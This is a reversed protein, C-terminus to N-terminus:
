QPNHNKMNKGTQSSSHIFISIQGASERLSFDSLAIIRLHEQLRFEALKIAKSTIKEPMSIRFRDLVKIRKERPSKLIVTGRLLLRQMADRNAARRNAHEYLWTVCAAGTLWAHRPQKCGASASLPKPNIGPVIRPNSWSSRVPQPCNWTKTRQPKTTRLQSLFKGLLRQQSAVSPHSFLVTPVPLRCAANSDRAHVSFSIYQGRSKTYIVSKLFLLQLSARQIGWQLCPASHHCCCLCSM